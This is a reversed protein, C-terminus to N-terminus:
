GYISCLLLQPRKQKPRLGLADLAAELQADADELQELDHQDIEKVRGQYAEISKAALIYGPYDYSCYVEIEVSIRAQAEKRRDWYGEAQWDTETFGAHIFLQNEVAESFGDGDENEPDYWDFTPSEFEDLGELDWGFEDGGLHYGYVLKATADMGM